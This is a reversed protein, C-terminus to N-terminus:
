LRGQSRWDDRWKAHGEPDTLRDPENDETAWHGPKEPEPEHPKTGPDNPPVHPHDVVPKVQAPNAGRSTGEASCNGSIYLLSGDRDSLHHTESCQCAAPEGIICIERTTEAQASTALVLPITLFLRNM